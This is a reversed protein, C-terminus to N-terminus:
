NTKNEKKIPIVKEVIIITSDLEKRSDGYTIYYFSGQDKSLATELEKSCQLLYIKGDDTKVALKTFPENGVVTIYGKVSNGEKGCNCSCGTSQFLYISLLLVFTFKLIKM